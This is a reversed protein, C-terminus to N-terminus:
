HGFRAMLEQEAVVRVQRVPDYRSAAGLPTRVFALTNAPLEPPLSPLFEAPLAARQELVARLAPDFDGVCLIQRMGRTLEPDAMVFSAAASSALESLSLPSLHEYGMGRLRMALMYSDVPSKGFLVRLRIAVSMRIAIMQQIRQDFNARQEPNPTGHARAIIYELGGRYRDWAHQVEENGLQERRDDDFYRTVAVYYPQAQILVAGLTLYDAAHVFAFFAHDNVRPILRVMADRRVIQVEPFIQYTLIHDLLEGHAQREIRLDHPVTYFQGLNRDEVLDLQLWPAYVVVIEPDAEMKAITAAVQEGILGDDDAVYVVYRGIAQQMAFQFNAFGGINQAHRISRIPLRGAFSAVVAPTDDPSANDAIVVEFSYPFGALHDVLSTLLSVLYRSRNYTPICFSVLPANM